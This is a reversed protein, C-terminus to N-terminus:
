EKVVKLGAKKIVDAAIEDGTRNDPPKSNIIEVYRKQLVVGGAYRQTNEAIAKLSDTVYTQYIEFNVRELVLSPLAALVARVGM